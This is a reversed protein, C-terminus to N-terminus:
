MSMFRAIVNRDRDRLILEGDVIEYSVATSFVPLFKDEVTMDRCMKRTSAIKDFAIRNGGFQEFQGSFNNCGSNGHVGGDETLEMYPYQESDEIDVIVAMDMAETLLWRQGTLGISEAKLMYKSGKVLQINNGLPLLRNEEVKYRNTGMEPDDNQLIVETGEPNWSLVGTFRQILPKDAGIYEVLVEYSRDNKLTVTKRKWLCDNCNELGYYDGQWDLSILGNHMDPATETSETQPMIKVEDASFRKTSKCSTFLIASAIIIFIINKKM